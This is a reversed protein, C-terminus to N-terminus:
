VHRRMTAVWFNGCLTIWRGAQSLLGAAAWTERRRPSVRYCGAPYLELIEVNV